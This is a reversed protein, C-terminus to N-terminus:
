KRSQMIQLFLQEFNETPPPAPSLVLKGDPGILFYAPLAKIDYDARISPQLAYHLFIWEFNYKDILDKLIDHGGDMIITIIQLNDKQRNNLNRLLEFEKICSYSFSNCFNLYVYKGSFDSLSVLNNDKDSLRFSPPEYGTLLNTVQSKIDRIYEVHKKNVSTYSISDLLILLAPRSFQENYFADYIGKIIVLERLSDDSLLDNKKLINNLVTFSKKRNIVSLLDLKPNGEAFTLFYDNFIENFLEMYAPNNYLLPRGSFYEKAIQSDNQQNGFMKLLGIRYDMYARFFKQDTSDFPAILQKIDKNLDPKVPNNSAANIVYKMYEPYFADNFARILFNLDEQGLNATSANSVPMSAKAVIHVRAPEFYPNNDESQTRDQKAPFRLTYTRGPEAFFYCNYAGLKIFIMRTDDIQFPCSFYGSDDVTCRSVEAERFSIMNSYTHFILEDGAYTPASGKLVPTVAQGALTITTLICVILIGPRKARINKM